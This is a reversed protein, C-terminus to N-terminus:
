EGRSASNQVETLSPQDVGAINEPETLEELFLADDHETYLLYAYISGTQAFYHWYFDKLM